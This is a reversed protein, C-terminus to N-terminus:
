EFFHAPPFRRRVIGNLPKTVKWKFVEAERFNVMM